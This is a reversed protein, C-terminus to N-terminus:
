KKLTRKILIIGTTFIIVIVLGIIGYIIYNQNGGTPGTIIIEVESEDPEKPSNSPVYNGPTSGDPIKGTVENVEVDNDFTFDMENNALLRTLYLKQSKVRNNEDPSM